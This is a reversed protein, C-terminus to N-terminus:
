LLGVCTPVARAAADKSAWTRSLLMLWRVALSQVSWVRDLFLTLPLCGGCVVIITQAEERSLHRCPEDGWRPHGRGWPPAVWSMPAQTPHRSVVLLRHPGVPITAIGVYPQRLTSIHAARRFGRSPSTPHSPEWGPSAAHPCGPTATDGRPAAQGGHGRPTRAVLPCHFMVSTSFRAWGGAGFCPRRDSAM